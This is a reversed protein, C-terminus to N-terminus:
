RIRVWNVIASQHGGEGPSCNGSEFRVPVVESDLREKTECNCIFVNATVDMPPKVLPSLEYHGPRYQSTAPGSPLSVVTKGFIQACVCIGALPNGAADIIISDKRIELYNCQAAKADWVVTGIYAIPSPSPAPTGTALPPTNTALPFFSTSTALPTTETPTPPVLSTPMFIPAMTATNTPTSVVVPVSTLTATYTPKPTRTPTNALAIPLPTLPHERSWRMIAYGSCAFLLLPVLILVVKEYTLHNEKLEQLFRDVIPLLKDRQDPQVNAGIVLPQGEGTDADLTIEGHWWRKYLEVYKLSELLKPGWKDLSKDWEKEHEGKWTGTKENLGLQRNAKKAGEIIERLYSYGIRKDTPWKDPDSHRNRAELRILTYESICLQQAFIYRDSPAIYRESARWEYLVDGPLQYPFEGRASADM